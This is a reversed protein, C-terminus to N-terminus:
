RNEKTLLITFPAVSIVVVIACAPPPSAAKFDDERAAHGSHNKLRLGAIDLGVVQIALRRASVPAPCIRTRDCERCNRRCSPRHRLGGQSSRRHSDVAHVAGPRDDDVARPRPPSGSRPPSIWIRSAAPGSTSRSLAAIDLHIPGARVDFRVRGFADDLDVCDFPM